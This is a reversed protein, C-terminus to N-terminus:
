FCSAFSRSLMDFFVLGGYRAWLGLGLGALALAALGMAVIGKRSLIGHDGTEDLM